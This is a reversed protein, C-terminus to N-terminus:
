SDSFSPSSGPIIFRMLGSPTIGSFPEGKDESWVVQFRKRVGISKGNAEPFQDRLSVWFANELAIAKGYILDVEIETDKFENQLEEIAKQDPTFSTPFDYIAKLVKKTTEVIDRETRKWLTFLGKLDDTMVGVLHEALLDIEKSPEVYDKEELEALEQIVWEHFM